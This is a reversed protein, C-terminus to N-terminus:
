RRLTTSDQPQKFPVEMKLLVSMVKEARKKEDESSINALFKVMSNEWRGWSDVADLIVSPPWIACYDCATLLGFCVALKTFSAFHLSVRWLRRPHTATEIVCVRVCVVVCHSAGRGDSSSSGGSVDLMILKATIVCRLTEISLGSDRYLDALTLGLYEWPSLCVMNPTDKETAALVLTTVCWCTNDFGRQNCKWIVKVKCPTAILVIAILADLYNGSFYNNGLRQMKEGM